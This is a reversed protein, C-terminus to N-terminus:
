AEKQKLAKYGVFIILGWLLISAIGSAKKSIDISSPRFEFKIEHKGAPVVLGRLVYNVKVIPTEKNDIYAKWGLNYYIESFVALQKKSTNATYLIDDNNNKVLQISAATDVELNSLDAIKDKEEVIATDKPNFTDLAKMVSAADKQYQVGKVFWANGLAERNPITDTAPNGSIVYKTNLMNITPMCNPFKYWQNEILDQYISLKAPNYGGVTKHHYAILAGGNFANQIGGRIDLVRYTSTDKKLAIDLPTLNFAAENETAEIFSDPKLYKTNLNFLDILTLVGLGVFFITPNIIKKISLFILAAILLLYL